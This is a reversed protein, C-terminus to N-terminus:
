GGALGLLEVEFWREIFWIGGCVVISLSVGKLLLQYGAWRRIEYIVPVIALVIVLQALEIGLNFPLLVFGFQSVPLEKELLVGAFGFGHILGFGFVIWWPTRKFVPVLNNLAAAMVSAAIASEVWRSDPLSVMGLVALSLTLAHAVTFATIVKLLELIVPKLVPQPQWKGNSRMQVAPLILALLFLMHDWGILLHYMGKQLYQWFLSVGSEGGLTYRRVTQDEWFYFLQENVGEIVQLTGQHYPNQEFFLHYRFEFYDKVAGCSTQIPFVLYDGKVHPRILYTKITLKCPQGDVVFQLHEVVYDAIQQADLLSYEQPELRGSQDADYDFVALLENLTIELAFQQVGVDLDVVIHAGEGLEHASVRAPSLWILSLGCLSFMVWFTRAMDVWLNAVQVRTDKKVVTM